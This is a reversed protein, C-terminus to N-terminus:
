DISACPCGDGVIGVHVAVNGVVHVHRRGGYGHVTRDPAVIPAGSDM